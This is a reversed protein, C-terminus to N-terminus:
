QYFKFQHINIAAVCCDKEEPLIESLRREFFTINMAGTLSDHNTSYVLNRNSKQILRFSYILFIMVLLIIGTFAFTLMNVNQQIMLDSPANTYFLYWGNVGIPTM